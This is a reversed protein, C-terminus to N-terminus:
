WLSNWYKQKLFQKYWNRWNVSISFGSNNILTPNWNITSLSVQWIGLYADYFSPSDTNKVDTRIAKNYIDFKIKSSIKHYYKNQIMMTTFSDIILTILLLATYFLAIKFISWFDFNDVIADVIKGNMSTSVIISVINCVVPLILALLVYLKGYNWFPKLLFLLNKFNKTTKKM